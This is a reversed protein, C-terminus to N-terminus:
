LIYRWIRMALDVLNPKRFLRRLGRMLLRERGYRQRLALEYERLGDSSVDGTELARLVYPAVMEGSEIAYAIGEGTLPNVLGAADGIAIVGKRVHNGQEFDSRLASARPVDLAIEGKKGYLSIIRTQIFSQFARRLGGQRAKEITLGVGVNLCDGRVPFIWAYHPLLSPEYFIQATGPCCSVGRIYTRMAVGQLHTAPSLGLQHTFRGTSGDAAIILNSCLTLWRERFLAQVKIVSGDQEIAGIVNVGEIVEAGARIAQELLLNDFHIRPVIYGHGYVSESHKSARVEIVRGAPTHVQVLTIKPFRGELAAQVGMRNLVRVARASIADGSVKDRPFRAGGVM